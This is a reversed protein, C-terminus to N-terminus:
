RARLPAYGLHMGADAIIFEGTIHASQPGAFFLISGAIDEPQSAVQLPTSKAVNAATQEEVSTGQYKTFWGSGIYGPCV